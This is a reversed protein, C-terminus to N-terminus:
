PNAPNQSILNSQTPTIATPAHVGACSAWTLGDESEPPANEVPWFRSAKSEVGLSRGVIRQNEFQRAVFPNLLALVADREPWRAGTLGV